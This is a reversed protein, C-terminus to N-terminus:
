IGKRELNLVKPQAQWKYALEYHTIRKRKTDKSSNNGKGTTNPLERAEKKQKM